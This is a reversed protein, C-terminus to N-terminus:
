LKNRIRQTRSMPGGPVTKTFKLFFTVTTAEPNGSQGDHKLRMWITSNFLVDAAGAVVNVTDAQLTGGNLDDLIQGSAQTSLKWTSRDASYEVFVNVDDGSQNNTYAAIFCNQVNCDGIYIAQTYHNDEAAGTFSITGTVIVSTESERVNITNDYTDAAFVSPVLLILTLLTTLFLRMM